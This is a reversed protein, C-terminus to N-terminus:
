GTFRGAADLTARREAALPEDEVRDEAETAHLMREAGTVLGVHHIGRGPYRFFYLDGRRVADIDVPEAAAQQDHADRPVVWGAVRFALHVLGSCDLGWACTGGWLYRLGLFQRGGEVVQGPDYASQDGAARVRTDTRRLTTSGGGPLAVQLDNATDDVLPLVTAWSLAEVGHGDARAAIAEAAIVVVQHGSEQPPPALHALPLWGTYGRADDSSPQWPAVVQGWGDREAVVDVPEGLLLQTLTRGHLGRRTQPDMAAAWAAVDPRDAMAPADVPRPADPGSWLTSVPVAVALRETM